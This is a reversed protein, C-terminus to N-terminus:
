QNNSTGSLWAACTISAILSVARRSALAPARAAPLCGGGSASGFSLATARYLSRWRSIIRPQRVSFVPFGAGHVRRFARLTYLRLRRPGPSQRDSSRVRPGSIATRASGASGSRRLLRWWPPSPRTRAPSRCPVPRSQTRPAAGSCPRHWAVCAPDRPSRPSCGTSTAPDAIRTWATAPPRPLQRRHSGSTAFARRHPRPRRRVDPWAPSRRCWVGCCPSPSSPLASGRGRPRHASGQRARCAPPPSRGPGPWSSITRRSKRGAHESPGPTASRRRRFTHPCSASPRGSWQPCARSSSPCSPLRAVPRQRLPAAPTTRHPLLSAQSM